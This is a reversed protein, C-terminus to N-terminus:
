RTKYTGIMQATGMMVMQLAPATPIVGTGTLAVNDPSTSANTTFRLTDSLNGLVTPTFNVTVNCSAAPALSSGCTTNSVSFNTGTVVAVSTINLTSGGTNTLNVTCPNLSVNCSSDPSNVAANGFAATTFSLSVVPPGSAGLFYNDIQVHAQGVPDVFDGMAGTGGNLHRAFEGGCTHAADPAQCAFTGPGGNDIGNYPNDKVTVIGWNLKENWYDQWAWQAVGVFMGVGSSTYYVTPMAGIDNKYDAGRAAQSIFGGENNDSYLVDCTTSSVTTAQGATYTLVGTGTNVSLPHKQLTGYSSNACNKADILDGTSFVIPTALTCTVTTGPPTATCPVNQWALSSDTNSVRYSSKIIPVDTGWATRVYDVMSQTWSSFGNGSGSAIIIDEGGASLGQLVFSDPPTGWSGLAYIGSHMVKGTFGNAGAWTSIASVAQSAYSQADAKTTANVDAKMGTSMGTLFVLSSGCYTHGARCDEDLLGTGIGWGNQIWGVSILVGAAPATNFTVSIAGTSYNITGSLGNSSGPGYLAGGGTDGGVITANKAVYVSFKSVTVNPITGTFTVTAGNGTGLSLGSAPSPCVFSPQLTGFCSGSTLDTTYSSGWSTNIGAINTHAAMAIDHLSKKIVITPNSTYVQTRGSDAFQAPPVYLAMTGCRFDYNGNAPVFDPGAGFCHSNDADTDSISILFHKMATSQSRVAFAVDNNLYATYWAGWCSDGYDVLSGTTQGSFSTTKLSTSLDHSLCSVSYGQPNFVSYFSIDAGAIYPVPNATTWPNTVSTARGPALGTFGWSLFRGISADAWAQQTGYKAGTYFSYNHTTGTEDGSGTTGGPIQNDFTFFTKLIYVHGLFDCLVRNQHAGVTVTDLSFATATGHTCPANNLGHYTDLGGTPTTYQAAVVPAFFLFLLGKLLPHM